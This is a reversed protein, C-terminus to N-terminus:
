EVLALKKSIAIAGAKLVYLYIGSAVKDGLDNTGDWVLQHRGADIKGEFLNRIQQGRLNYIRLSINAPAPMEFAITTEPNFPNPYNGLLRFTTPVDNGSNTEIATTPSLNNLSWV